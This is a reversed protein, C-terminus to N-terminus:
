AGGYPPLADDEDTGAVRRFRPSLAYRALAPLYGEPKGRKLARLGLYAGLLVLGNILLSEKNVMFAATFVLLLVCGDALDMGLFKDPTGVNRYVTISRM